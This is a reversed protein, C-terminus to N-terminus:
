MGGNKGTHKGSIALFGFILKPYLFPLVATVSNISDSLMAAAIVASAVGCRLLYGGLTRTKGNHVAQLISRRLLLLNCYMGASGLALGLPVASGLGRVLFYTILWIAADLLLTGAAAFRMEKHLDNM